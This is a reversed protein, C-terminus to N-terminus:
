KLAIMADGVLNKLTRLRQLDTEPTGSAGQRLLVITGERSRKAVGERQIRLRASLVHARLQLSLQDSM